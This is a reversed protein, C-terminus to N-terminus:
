NCILLILERLITKLCIKFSCYVKRRKFKRIIPKDLEEALQQNSMSKIRSGKSKKNFFIYVMSALRREYGDYKPNSAIKFAKDKLFIDSETRKTFDKYWGYAMDRQFCSKNLDKRYIYNTTEIQMFKHIREKNKTFPGCASYTFGPQKLHREPMFKDWTLLSKNVTENMKYQYCISFLYLM